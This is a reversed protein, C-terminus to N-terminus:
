LEGGMITITKIVTRFNLCKAYPAGSDAKM